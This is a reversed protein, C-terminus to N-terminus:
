ARRGSLRKRAEGRGSGSGEGVEGPRLIRGVLSESEEALRVATLPRGELLWRTILAVLAAAAAEARLADLPRGPRPPHLRLLNRRFIDALVGAVKRSSAGTLMSEALVHREELHRYFGLFAIKEQGEGLILAELHGHGWLLLQEKNEFHLYFASRSVGSRSLIDRISVADYGKEEILAALAESLKRRTRLARAGISKGGTENM